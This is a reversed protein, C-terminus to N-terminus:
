QTDSFPLCIFHNYLLFNYLIIFCHLSSRLLYFIVTLILTPHFRFSEVVDRRGFINKRERAFHNCEVLIHCITLIFPCQECQPPPDKWLIYSHTLYTHGIRVRCLVVKDKRCRRYSSQWDVLVPKVYHLKNAVEGNWDINVIVKAYVLTPVLCIWPLSPLLTQMKMARLALIAPYGVYFM